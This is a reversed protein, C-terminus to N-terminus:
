QHRAQSILEETLLQAIFANKTIQQFIKQIDSFYRHPIFYIPKLSIHRGNRFIQKIYDDDQQQQSSKMIIIIIM